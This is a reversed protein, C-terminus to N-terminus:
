NLHNDESKQGKKRMLTSGAGMAGMALLGLVSGPEPVPQGTVSLNWSGLPGTDGGANDSIRLQWTGQSLEGNFATLSPSAIAASNAGTPFYNGSPINQSGNLGAATTWLNGTFASNFSYTGGFNSSDGIGSGVRGVRNFLSVTTNTTVNTLTAVLDGIWTHNLNNLTVTIDSINLNDSVVINSSVGTPNGDPISFGSGSYNITLAQASGTSGLAIFAATGAAAISLSKLLTSTSM